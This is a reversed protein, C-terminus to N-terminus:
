QLTYNFYAAMKAYSDFSDGTLLELESDSLASKFAMVSYYYFPSVNPALTIKSITNTIPTANSSTTSLVGNLFLKYAGAKYVLAARNIGATIPASSTLAFTYTGGIYMDFSLTNNVYATFFLTGADNTVTSFVQAGLDTTKVIYINFFMTGETQGLLSSISGKTAVYQNLYM